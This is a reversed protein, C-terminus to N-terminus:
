QSCAQGQVGCIAGLDRSNGRASLWEPFGLWMPLDMIRPLLKTTLLPFMAMDKHEPGNEQSTQETM